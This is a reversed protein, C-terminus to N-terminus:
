NKKYNKPISFNLSLEKNFEYQKFNMQITVKNKETAVIERQTSFYTDNNKEYGDYSFDATRNLQLDTDDLKCHTLLNNPKEITILNKFGNDFSSVLNYNEFKRVAMNKDNFFIPNGLILNQLTKFDFPINTIEQLYDISRHHVEKAQKDLLIVSDKTIFVRFVEITIVVNATISIWIASDKIMKINATLDPKKGKSTEIDLKIKASFTKCDINSKKFDKKVEEILALSDAVNNIKVFQTTDKPAIAKTIAKGPKCSSLFIGSICCAVVIFLIQKKMELINKFVQIALVV